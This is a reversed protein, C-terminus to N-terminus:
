TVTSSAGQCQASALPVGSMRRPKGGPGCLTSISSTFAFWWTTSLPLTVNSTGPAAASEARRRQGGSARDGRGFLYWLRISSHADHACEEHRAADGTTTSTRLHRLFEVDYTKTTAHSSFRDCGAKVIAPQRERHDFAFQDPTLARVPAM